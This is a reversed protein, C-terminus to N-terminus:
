GEHHCSISTVKQVEDKM